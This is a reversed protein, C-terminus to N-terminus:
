ARTQGREATTASLGPKAGHQPPLVSGQNPGRAATTASLGPKAGHQPPLVSGLNPGRAATTASLGPKAGNQLPLVLGQNPGTSRHYCQARTQGREATTASLGPKAGHQPPLVSGLNPGRAATTASLGPKAGHQLTSMDETVSSHLAPQNSPFVQRKLVGPPLRVEQGELFLRVFVQSPMLGAGEGLVGSRPPPSGGDPAPPSWLRPPDPEMAWVGRINVNLFSYGLLPQPLTLDSFLFLFGVSQATALCFAEPIVPKVRGLGQYLVEPHQSGRLAAPREM